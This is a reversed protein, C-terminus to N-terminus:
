RQAHVPLKRRTKLINFYGQSLQSGTFPNIPGDEAKAALAFTTKHRRFQALPGDSAAGDYHYGNFSNRVPPRAPQALSVGGDESDDSEPYMHALYPNSKPDMKDATKQKKTGQDM